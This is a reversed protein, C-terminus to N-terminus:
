PKPKDPLAASPPTRADSVNPLASHDSSGSRRIVSLNGHTELVFYACIAMLAIRLLSFWDDFFM